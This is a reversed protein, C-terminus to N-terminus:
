VHSVTVTYCDRLRMLGVREMVVVVRSLHRGV